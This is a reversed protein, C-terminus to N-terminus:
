LICTKAISKRINVFLIHGLTIVYM